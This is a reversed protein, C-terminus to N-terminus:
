KSSGVALARLVLQAERGPCHEARLAHDRGADAAQGISVRQLPQPLIPKLASHPVVRPRVELVCIIHM